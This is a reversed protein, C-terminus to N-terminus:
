RLCSFSHLHARMHACTNRPELVFHSHPYVFFSASEGTLGAKMETKERTAMLACVRSAIDLRATSVTACMDGDACAPCGMSSPLPMGPRPIGCNLGAPRTLRIM